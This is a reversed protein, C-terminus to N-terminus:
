RRVGRGARHGGRPHGSHARYAAHGDLHRAILRDLVTVERDYVEVLDRLSAVRLYYADPLDAADLFRSGVPGWIHSIPFRVGEKALVGHVQAKLGARQDVLKHRYRVLERLERIEGPAIWAKPLCHMRLLDALLRADLRDNKVRRNEFAKIGQPHALHLRLGLEELVDVAWYWGVTAEIAVEAGDGAKAVEAALVMPDNDIRAEGVVRGDADMRVIVSRRRHLDIGVYQRQEM